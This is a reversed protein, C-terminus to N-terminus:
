ISSVKVSCYTMHRVYVHFKQSAIIYANILHFWFLTQESLLPFNDPKIVYVETNPSIRTNDVWDDAFTSWIFELRILKTAM